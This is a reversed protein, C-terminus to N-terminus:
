RAKMDVTIPYKNRLADMFHKADADSSYQVCFDDVVLSFITNRTDHSWLGPTHQAPKYGYPAMHKVLEKNAIIGAQKLGYMGKDIRIYVWGQDDVLTDLKYTEIIEQSIIKLPLRMFEPSPLKNNLYLHKFDATLCKANPTSIVSNFVCKATTISATPASLNGIFSLLNGGVTLRTRHVEVKDTKIDCCIRGYTVTKGSPVLCKKIFVITNTGKIERIGQALQGIENAFSRILLNKDPGKLLHRYEQAVGTDPHIVSNEEM